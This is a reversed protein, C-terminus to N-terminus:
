LGWLEFEVQRETRGVAALATKLADEPIVYAMRREKGIPKKDINPIFRRLLTGVISATSRENYGRHEPAFSVYNAQFDSAFFTRHRLSQVGNWNQLLLTFIWAESSTLPEKEGFAEEHTLVEESDTFGLDMDTLEDFGDFGDVM